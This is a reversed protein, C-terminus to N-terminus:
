TDKIQRVMGADTGFKLLEHRPDPQQQGSVPPPFSGLGTGWLILIDGPAASSTATVLKTQNTGFTVVAPGSGTGSAVTSIGFASQTVTIPTSGSKGNYTLTLTGTGAPIASPMVAAVQPQWTYLIPVPLTTGGVTVTITTGSLGATTPLPLASAGIIGTPGMNSGYIVFVSGQAIGYNPFGPPISSAANVIGTFSPSQAALTAAVIALALALNRFLRM